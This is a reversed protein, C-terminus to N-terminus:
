GHVLMPCTIEKHLTPGSLDLCLQLNKKHLTTQPSHALLACTIKKHSTPEPLDLCCQKHNNEQLFIVIHVPRINCWYNESATAWLHETFFTNKSIEYFECSFVQALTEIKKVSLVLIACTIKKHLTIESTNPCCQTYSIGIFSLNDTLWPGVNCLYNGQAINAWM